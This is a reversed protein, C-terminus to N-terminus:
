RPNGMFMIMFHFDSLQTRSNAVGHVICYMSNELGSYQFPYSNGEGLSVERGLSLVKTEQMAPPNKVLQAM